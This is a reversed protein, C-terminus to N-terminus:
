RAHEAINTTVSIANLTSARVASASTVWEVEGTRRLRADGKFINHVRLAENLGLMRRSLILSRFLTDKISLNAEMFWDPTRKAVTRVGPNCIAKVTGCVTDKLNIVLGRVIQPYTALIRTECRRTGSGCSRAVTYVASLLQHIQISM